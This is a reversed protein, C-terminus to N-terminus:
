KPTWMQSIPDYNMDVTKKTKEDLQAQTPIPDWISGMKLSRRADHTVVSLAFIAFGAAIVFYITYPLMIWLELADTDDDSKTVTIAEGTDEDTAQYTTPPDGPFVRTDVYYGVAPGALALVVASIGFFLIVARVFKIVARDNM